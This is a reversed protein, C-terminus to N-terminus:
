NVTIIRVPNVSSFHCDHYHHRSPFIAIMSTTDVHLVNGYQDVIVMGNDRHTVVLNHTRDSLVMMGSSDISVYYSRSDSTRVSLIKSNSDYTFYQINNHNISNETVWHSGSSTIELYYITGRSTVCIRQGSFSSGYISNNNSVVGLSSSVRNANLRQALDSSTSSTPIPQLLLLNTCRGNECKLPYECQSDISCVSGQDGGESGAVCLGGGGCYYGTSCMSNKTCIETLEKVCRGKDCKLPYECESTTTCIAGEDKGHDGSVCTGDGGCYLGSGCDDDSTCFEGIKNGKARVLMYWILVGVFIILIIVVFVIGAIAAGSLAM